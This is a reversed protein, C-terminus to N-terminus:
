GHVSGRARVDDLIGRREENLRAYDALAFMEFQMRETPAADLLLRSGSLVQVRMVASARRLDLLDVEVQLLEALRSALNWRVLEDCPSSALLALDCDSADGALGSARSGFLYVSQVGPLAARIADLASAYSDLRPFSTM